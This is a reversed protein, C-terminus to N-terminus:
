MMAFYAPDGVISPAAMMTKRSTSSAASITPMTMAALMPAGRRPNQTQRRDPRRADGAGPEHSQEGGLDGRGGGADALLQQVRRDQEERDSHEAPVVDPHRAM